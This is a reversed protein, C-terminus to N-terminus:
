RLDVTRLLDITEERRGQIPMERHSPQGHKGPPEADM